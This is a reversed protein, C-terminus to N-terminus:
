KYKGIGTYIGACKLYIIVKFLFYAIFVLCALLGVAGQGPLMLSSMLVQPFIVFGAMGVLLQWKVWNSLQGQPLREDEQSRPSPGLRALSVGVALATAVATAAFVTVPMFSM